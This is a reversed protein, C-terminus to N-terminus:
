VLQCDDIKIRYGTGLTSQNSQGKKTAEKMPNIVNLTFQANLQFGVCGLRVM